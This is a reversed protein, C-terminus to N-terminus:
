ENQEAPQVLIVKAYLTVTGLRYFDHFEVSDTLYDAACEYGMSPVRMSSAVVSVAPFKLSSKSLQQWLTM